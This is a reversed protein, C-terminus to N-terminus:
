QGATRRWNHTPTDIGLSNRERKIRSTAAIQTYLIVAMLIDSRCRNSRRRHFFPNERELSRRTIRNFEQRKLLTRRKQMIDHIYAIVKGKNAFHFIRNTNDCTFFCIFSFFIDYHYLFNYIFLNNNRATNYVSHMLLQM